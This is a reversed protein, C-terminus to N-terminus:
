KKNKSSNKIKFLLPLMFVVCAVLFLISGILYFWDGAIISSIIYFISCLIFLSWGILQFKMDSNNGGM